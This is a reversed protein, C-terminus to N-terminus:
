KVFHTVVEQVYLLNMQIKGDVGFIICYLLVANNKIWVSRKESLWICDDVLRTLNQHLNGYTFDTRVREAGLTRIGLMNPDLDRASSYTWKVWKIYYSVTHFPDPHPADSSPPRTYGQRDSSELPKPHAFFFLPYAFGWLEM